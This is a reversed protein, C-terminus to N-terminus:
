MKFKTWVPKPYKYIENIAQRYKLDVQSQNNCLWTDIRLLAYGIYKTAIKKKGFVKAYKRNAEWSLLGDRTREQPLNSTKTVLCRGLTTDTYCGIVCVTHADGNDNYNFEIHPTLTEGKVIEPYGCRQIGLVLLNDKLPEMVFKVFSNDTIRRSNCNIVKNSVLTGQVSYNKNLYKVSQENKGGDFKEFCTVDPKITGGSSLTIAIKPGYAFCDAGQQAQTPFKKLRTEGIDQLFEKWTTPDRGLNLLNGSSMHNIYPFTYQGRTSRRM